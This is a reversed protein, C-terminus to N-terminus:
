CFLDNSRSLFTFHFKAITMPGDEATELRRLREVCISPFQFGAEM